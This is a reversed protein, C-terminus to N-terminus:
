QRQERAEAMDSVDFRRVLLPQSGLCLSCDNWHCNARAGTLSAIRASRLGRFVGVFACSEWLSGDSFVWAFQFKM